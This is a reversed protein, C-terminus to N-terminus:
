RRPRRPRRARLLLGVLAAGAGLLAPAPPRGARPPVRGGPPAGPLAFEEAALVDYPDAGGYPDPPLVLPARHLAPDAAGLAFAEGALVDHARRREEREHRHHLEADPAGVAFAEAALVDHVPEEVGDRDPNSM